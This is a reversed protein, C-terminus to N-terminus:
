TSLLDEIANLADNPSIHELCDSVKSGACGDM